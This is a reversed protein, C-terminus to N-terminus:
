VLDSYLLLLPHFFIKKKKELNINAQHRQYGLVAQNRGGQSYVFVSMDLYQIGLEQKKNVTELECTKRM